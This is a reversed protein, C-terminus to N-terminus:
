TSLLSLPAMRTLVGVPLMIHCSQVWSSSVLLFSGLRLLDGESVCKLFSFSNSSQGRVM